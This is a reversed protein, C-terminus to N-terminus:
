FAGGLLNISMRDIDEAICFTADTPEIRLNVTEGANLLTIGTCMAHQYQPPAGGGGGRLVEARAFVSNTSVNIAIMVFSGSEIFMYFTVNYYGTVPATFVSGNWLGRPDYVLSPYTITQMSGNTYSAFAGRYSCGIFSPFRLCTAVIM